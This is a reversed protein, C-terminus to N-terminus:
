NCGHHFGKCMEMLIHGEACGVDLVRAEPSLQRMMFDTYFGLNWRDDQRTPVDSWSSHSYDASFIARIRDQDLKMTFYDKQPIAKEQESEIRIGNYGRKSFRKWDSGM